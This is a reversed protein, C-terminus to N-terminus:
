GVAPVGLDSRDSDSLENSMSEENVIAVVRQRLSPHSGVSRDRQQPHIVAFTELAAIVQESSSCETAFKDAEFEMSRFWTKFIAFVYGLFLLAFLYNRFAGIRTELFESSAIMAHLGFSLQQDVMLFLLPAVILSMRKFAHHKKIHGIEHLVVADLQEGPFLRLMLDSVVLIQTGPIVGVAAANAINDGTIWVRVELPRFGIQHFLRNIRRQVKQESTDQASLKRTKWIALIVKPYIAMVGVAFVIVGGVMFFTNFFEPKSDIAMTAVDMVFFAFLIPAAIVLFRMRIWLSFVERRSRCVSLGNAPSGFIFIGWSVVLSFMVPSIILVDDLLPLSSGALSDRVVWPWQLTSVMFTAAVLWVISHIIAVSKLRSFWTSPLCDVHRKRAIWIQFAAVAPVVLSVALVAATQLAPDKPTQPSCFETWMLMMLIVIAVLLSM